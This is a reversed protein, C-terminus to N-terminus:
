DACYPRVKVYINTVNQCVWITLCGSLIYLGPYGAVFQCRVLPLLFNIYDHNSWAVHVLLFQLQASAAVFWRTRLDRPNSRLKDLGLEVTWFTQCVKPIQRDDYVLRTGLTESIRGVRRSHELPRSSSLGQSRPQYWVSVQHMDLTLHHLEYRCAM